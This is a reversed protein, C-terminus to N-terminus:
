STASEQAYVYVVFVIRAGVDAALKLVAPELALEFSSPTSGAGVGISFDRTSAENWLARAEPSLQDILAVFGRIATDADPPQSALELNAFYGGDLEMCTLPSAGPEFARVLDALDRAGRLDLDVNIFKTRSDANMRLGFYPVAGSMAGRHRPHAETM